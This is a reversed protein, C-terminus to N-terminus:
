VGVYRAYNDQMPVLKGLSDSNPLTGTGVLVLACPTLCISTVKRTATNRTGSWVLNHPLKQLADFSTCCGVEKALNRSELPPAESKLGERFRSVGPFLRSASSSPIGLGDNLGFSCSQVPTTVHNGELMIYARLRQWQCHNINSQDNIMTGVGSWTSYQSLVQFAGSRSFLFRLISPGTSMATAGMLVAVLLNCMRRNMGM